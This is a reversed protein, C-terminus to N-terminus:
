LCHCLSLSYTTTMHPSIKLSTPQPKDAQFCHAPPLQLAPASGSSSMPIQMLAHVEAAQVPAQHKDSRSSATCKRRKKQPLTVTSLRVPLGKWEPFQLYTDSLGPIIVSLGSTTLFLVLPPRPMLRSYAYPLACISLSSPPFPFAVVLFGCCSSVLPVLSKSLPAFQPTATFSCGLPSPILGTV